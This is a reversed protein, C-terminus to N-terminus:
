NKELEKKRDQEDETLIELCESVYIAFESSGGMLKVKMKTTSPLLAEKADYIHIEAIMEDWMMENRLDQNIVKRYEVRQLVARKDIKGSAKKPQAMESKLATTQNDIERIKDASLVRVGVWEEKGAKVETDGEKPLPYPFRTSPNLNNIDIPM